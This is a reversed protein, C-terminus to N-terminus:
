YFHGRSNLVLFLLLPHDELVIHSNVGGFGFSSIGARRPTTQRSWSMQNHQIYFPTNDLNIYPNLQHFNLSKPLLEHKFALLVKIVGAIGAAPELHGIHTKVSGIGCFKTPMLDERPSPNKKMAEAFVSKLANIEIPDGLPTGTGHAEIYSITTPDIKARALADRIVTSQAKPSPSTLTNTKGGHNVASGLIVGYIHDKDRIADALRKLLIVGVGEGRVYGSADKDFTKCKGDESLM